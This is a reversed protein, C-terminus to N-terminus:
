LPLLKVHPRRAMWTKEHSKRATENRRVYYDVLWLAHDEDLHPLKMAARLLRVTRDLTLEPTEKRLDRRVLTVFLHALSVLSMHHHWGAWSRTEYQTMGLYTKSDEFFEEVRFRTCAVQALVELRTTQPANSIYYKIEPTPDLSRRILLWGQPGPKDHRRQWIPVAAFEFALPGKTGQAVVLTRWATAPLSAGVEKVSISSDPAPRTPVRGRGSYAPVALTPDTTWVHTTVPVEVVYNQNLAELEDLFQGSRGYLEDAIVWDLQVSDLVAVTRILQAAIQPKTRFEIGPPVHAANRREEGEPTQECWQEPLFLQHALLASGGPTVATVYVGVQCNDEKGLRGNHQRAVGASKNGKKTFASEDVVGVVGIPSGTATPVLETAFVHQLDAQIDEHDWPGSNIFKQMASVNGNGVNLAIPEISKREPCIMLGKIYTFANDQAEAKGFTPAFREHFDVLRKAAARVDDKTM